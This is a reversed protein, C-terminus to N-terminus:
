TARRHIFYQQVITLLNNVLWYIVLGSPFNLFLFTFIIPMMMFIKAQTPDATTPTMKQQVFMSIGMLVPTIYYPDKASLDTIWFAFPAHRLAISDLLVKYLAFFVPIQVLMPLCGGMPNVRHTKYLDMLEKNLREKDDKFRERIKQMEPQLKQMAKMSAYSKHTLPWFLLKIIVTLLIIALGYNKLYGYFFILVHFLPKALLDFFGFHITQELNHGAAKLQDYDKPGFYLSYDFRQSSGAPLTLYPSVLINEVIDDGGTIHVREVADPGPVVVSMFYKTQFSTWTTEKGSYSRPESALDDIDDEKIKGGVMSTPGSFSYQDTDLSEDWQQVLTLDLTGRLAAQSTNHLVVDADMIYRDGHLVFVKDVVLGSDTVTQFIITKESKGTLSVQNEVSTTYIADAALNLGETGTTKLTAYRVPGPLFLQVPASEPNATVRYEKLEYSLLRAGQTTFVARYLDTEISIERAPASPKQAVPDEQSVTLSEAQKVPAASAPEPNQTQNETIPAQQNENVATQPPQQPPFLVSFGLWVALMLVLAIILNKNENANMLDEEEWIM